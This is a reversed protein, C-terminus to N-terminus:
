IKSKFGVMSCFVTTTAASPDFNWATNATGPVPVSLNVVAGGNAPVPVTLKATTGDKIEVYINSASTNTLVVSTLYTKVGAGSAAICQTSTGDTNSANGTVIDELNSYPRVIQVGDVGAYVDTRDGDAVLTVTSLSTEAKAGMKVPSGSDTADHAVNGLSIIQGTSDSAITVRQVGTGSAGNGMTVAVGNMQSVNVGTGSIANDLVEVATKISDLQSTMLRLKAQMSGTSGATAAADANAGFPDAPVTVVDVNGINNDGAAIASVTVPLPDSSSVDTSVGDVGFNMKVRPYKVSSIEDAAATTTTASADKFTYNDAM